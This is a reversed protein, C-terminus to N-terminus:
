STFSAIVRGTAVVSLAVILIIEAGLVIEKDNVLPNCTVALDLQEKDIRDTEVSRHIGIPLRTSADKMRASIERGLLELQFLDVILNLHAVFCLGLLIGLICCSWTYASTIFESNSFLPLLAISGLVAIVSTTGVVVGILRILKRVAAVFADRARIREMKDFECGSCYWRKHPADLWHGGPYWVERYPDGFVLRSRCAPCRQDNPDASRITPVRAMSRREWASQRRNRMPFCSVVGKKQYEAPYGLNSAVEAQIPM